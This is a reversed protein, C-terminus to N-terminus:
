QKELQRVVERDFDSFSIQATGIRPASLANDIAAAMDPTAGERRVNWWIRGYGESFFTPAFTNILQNPVQWLGLRYLIRERGFMPMFRSFFGNLQMRESETLTEPSHVSKSYIEAFQPDSLQQYISDIQDSTGSALEAQAVIGNQRIELYVFILGVLIAAIGALELVDKWNQRQM